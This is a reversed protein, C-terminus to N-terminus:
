RTFTTLYNFNDMPKLSPHDRRIAERVAAAAAELLAAAAVRIAVAVERM